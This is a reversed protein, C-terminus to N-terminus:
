KQAKYAIPSANRIAELVEEKRKSLIVGYAVPYEKDGRHQTTLTVRRVPLHADKVIKIFPDLSRFHLGQQRLLLGLLLFPSQPNEGKRRVYGALSIEPLEDLYGQLKDNDEESDVKEKFESYSVREKPLIAGWDRLQGRTTSLDHITMGLNTAIQGLNTEGQAIQERIRIMRGGSARSHEERTRLSVPKTLSLDEWPFTQQLEPSCSEWVRRAGRRIPLQIAHHTIGGYIAGLETQTADSFYYDFILNHERTLVGERRTGSLSDPIVFARERLAARLFEHTKTQYYNSAEVPM